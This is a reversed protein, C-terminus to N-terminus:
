HCLTALINTNQFPINFSSNWESDLRTFSCITSRDSTPPIFSFWKTVSLILFLFVGNRLWKLQRNYNQPLICFLRCFFSSGILISEYKWTCLLILYIMLTISKLTVVLIMANHGFNHGFNKNPKILLSYERPEILYVGRGGNGGEGM